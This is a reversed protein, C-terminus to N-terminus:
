HDPPLQLDQGQQTEMLRQLYLGGQLPLLLALSALLAFCFKKYSKVTLM